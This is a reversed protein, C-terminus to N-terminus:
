DSNDKSDRVDTRSEHRLRYIREFHWWAAGIGAVIAVVTAILQLVTNLDAIWTMSAMTASTAVAADAAVKPSVTDM